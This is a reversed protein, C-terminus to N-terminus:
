EQPELAEAWAEGLEDNPPDEYEDSFYQEIPGVDDPTETQELEEVTTEIERRSKRTM